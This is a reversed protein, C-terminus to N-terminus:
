ERTITVVQNAAVDERVMRHGDPWIVEVRDAVNAAGLGFHLRQDHASLYSGGSSADRIQQKGGATVVVRTGIATGHGAVEEPVVMLWAGVTSENRLLVPPADLNSLLLDLDGDNDYDAAALGRSAQVLEFGPGAEQTVDVFQGAGTNELLLNPQRYTLGWEPHDDVQPYIHGNAIVLDLDGDNDLDALAAGWSLVYFTADATGAPGSIEEFFGGGLGHYVACFDEAFNTVVIDLILDGDVDGVAVGMGAQGAGGGDYATGSWLGTQQFTGDGNNSYLFNANSDNAVYLDVDGDDDFDAARVGFGFGGIDDTLGASATAEVYSGRGDALFFHDAAGQLGFPGLAVMALGKWLVAPKAALVEEVSSEIYGAMYLDLDGDADADFFAAGTSWEPVEVGTAAAVNEFTGNGRNRYLLNPGFNTVLIDPWGDGDYDAVAVGCGWNGEGGTGSQDTVDEFTGDGRNRYLANKGREVIQDGAMSWSNVVYADLHGDRDFDLWAVGTGASDLLHDKAPRGALVVRTLGAAAAVDTFKFSAASAESGPGDGMGGGALLLAAVPVAIGRVGMSGAPRGTRGFPGPMTARAERKNAADGM